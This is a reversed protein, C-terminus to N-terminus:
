LYEPKWLTLLWLYKQAKTQALKQAKNQLACINANKQTLKQTASDSEKAIKKCVAFM